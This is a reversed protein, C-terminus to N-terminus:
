EVEESNMRAVLSIAQNDTFGADVLAMFLEHMYAAAEGLPTIPEDDFEEDLDDDDYDDEDRKKGM